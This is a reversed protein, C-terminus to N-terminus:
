LQKELEILREIPMRNYTKTNTIIKEHGYDNRWIKPLKILTYDPLINLVYALIIITIVIGFIVSAYKQLVDRWISHTYDYGYMQIHVYIALVLFVISLLFIVFPSIRPVILFIFLGTVTLVFLSPLFTTM